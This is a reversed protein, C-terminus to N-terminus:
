NLLHIFVFYSFVGILLWLLVSLAKKVLSHMYLRKLSGPLSWDSAIGEGVGAVPKSSDPEKYDANKDSEKIYDPSQNEEKIKVTGLKVNEPLLKVTMSDSYRDIFIDGFSEVCPRRLNDIIVCGTIEYGWFFYDMGEKQLIGSLVNLFPIQEPNEKRYVCAAKTLWHGYYQVLEEDIGERAAMVVFLYKDSADLSIARTGPQVHLVGNPNEALYPVKM